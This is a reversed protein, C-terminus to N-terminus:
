AVVFVGEADHHRVHGAAERGAIREFLRERVRALGNRRM